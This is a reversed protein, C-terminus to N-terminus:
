HEDEYAKEAKEAADWMAAAVKGANTDGTEYAMLDLLVAADVCARTLNQVVVPMKPNSGACNAVTPRRSPDPDLQAETNKRRNLHIVKGQDEM